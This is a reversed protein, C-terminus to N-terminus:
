TTGFHTKRKVFLVKKPGYASSVSITMDKSHIDISLAEVTEGGDSVFVPQRNKLASVSVGGGETKPRIQEYTFYGDFNFQGAQSCKTEQMTVVASRTERILKRITTLKSKVGNPNFGTFTLTKLINKRYKRKGRKNCRKTM